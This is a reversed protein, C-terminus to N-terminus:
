SCLYFKNQCPPKTLLARRTSWTRLTHQECFLVALIFKLMNRVQWLLTQIEQGIWVSM